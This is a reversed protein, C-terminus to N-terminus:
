GTTVLRVRVPMARNGAHTVKGGDDTRLRAEGSSAHAVADGRAGPPGTFGRRKTREQGRKTRGDAVRRCTRRVRGHGARAPAGQCPADRRRVRVGRRPRPGPHELTSTNTSVKTKGRSKEQSRWFCFAGPHIVRPRERHRPVDPHGVDRPPADPSSSARWTARCAMACAAARPRASPGPRRHSRSTPAIRICPDQGTSAEGGHRLGRVIRRQNEIDLPISAISRAPRRVARRVAGAGPHGRDGPRTEPRM